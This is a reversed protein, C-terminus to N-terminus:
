ATMGINRVRTRLTECWAALNAVTDTPAAGVDSQRAVPTVGYLGIEAAGSAAAIRIGEQFVTSSNAWGLKLEGPAGAGNPAGGSLQLPSGNSGGSLAGRGRVWLTQATNSNTLRLTTINELQLDGPTGSSGAEITFGSAQSSGFFVRNNLVEFLNINTGSNSLVSIVPGANNGLRIKGVTAYPGAGLAIFSASAGLTISDPIGGGVIRRM